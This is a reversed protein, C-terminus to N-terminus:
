KHKQVLLTQFLHSLQDTEATNTDGLAQALPDDIQTTSLSEEPIEIEIQPKSDEAPDGLLDAMADSSAPSSQFDISITSGSVQVQYEVQETLFIVQTIIGDEYNNVTVQIDKFLDINNQDKPAFNPGINADSVDIVVEFPDTKHFYLVASGSTNRIIVWSDGAKQGSESSLVDSASISEIAM